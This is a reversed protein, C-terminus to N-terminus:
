LLNREPEKKALGQDVLMEYYRRSPSTPKYRRVKM